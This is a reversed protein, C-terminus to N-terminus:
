AAQEKEQDAAQSQAKQNIDEGRFRYRLGTLWGVVLLLVTLWPFILTFIASVTLSFKTIVTGDRLVELYNRNGKTVLTTIFNGITELVNGKNAKDQKQKEMEKEEAKQRNAERDNKELLVAAELLDWNTQELANRAEEVGVNMKESLKVAMEYRDM